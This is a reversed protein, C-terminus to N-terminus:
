QKAMVKKKDNYLELEAIISSLENIQQLSLKKILYKPKLMQKLKYYKIANYWRIEALNPKLSQTIMVLAYVYSALPTDKDKDAKILEVLEYVDKANREYLKVKLGLLEIDKTRLQM